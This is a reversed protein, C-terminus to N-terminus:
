YVSIHVHDYHNQTISGRDEMWRWQNPANGPFWIRQKWIIYKVGFEGSHAQAWAAVADGEAFSSTMVDIARGTGHDQPDGPRYGGINRIGFLTRIASYLANANPQLYPLSYATTNYGGGNPVSAPTNSPPQPPQPAQPQPKAAQAARAAAAAAEAAVREAELQAAIAAQEAARRAAEQEAALQALGDVRAREIDVSTAKAAALAAIRQEQESHIRAAEEAASRASADAAASAQNAASSAAAQQEKAVVAHKEAEAQVNASATAAELSRQRLDGVMSLAASRDAVAQPGGAELYAEVGGVSGQEQYMQAATRRVALDAKAREDAAATAQAQAKDAAAKREALLSRASEAASQALGAEIQLQALRTSAAAYAAEIEAVSGSAVNVAAKAADVQEQSPIVPATSRASTAASASSLGSMTAPAMALLAVAAGGRALRARSFWSRTSATSM